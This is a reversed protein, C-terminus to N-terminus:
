KTGPEIPGRSRKEYGVPRGEALQSEQKNWYNKEYARFLGLPSLPLYM